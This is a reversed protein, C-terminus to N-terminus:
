RALARLIGSAFNEAMAEISYKLSMAEAASAMAQRRPSDNLLKAVADGYALPNEWDEVMLGNEGPTLYAIEPSHWPFNTTAIPLRAAGADLIALGVLGPMMFVHGLMMLEVKSLGFRPGLVRIWPRNKALEEVIPLDQGGGIVLLEFDEVQARIAEASEVLFKMRKDPYIGGVFVGVHNGCLGLETRLKNLREPTVTSVQNRLESIDVSNNFVTIREPPFGLSEVHRRTEDTYAFWWDAKSAWFRKWREGFSDPNRAQFNRGHGFYAVKLLGLRAMIVLPYVIAMKNEQQVIVLDFSKAISLAHQYKVGKYFRTLKTKIGWDYDVTDQRKKDNGQPDCYVVKYDVNKDALIERLKKNFPERYHYALHYIYCVRQM